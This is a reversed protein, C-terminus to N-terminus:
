PASSYSRAEGGRVATSAGDGQFIRRYLDPGFSTTLPPGPLVRYTRSGDMAREARLFLVDEPRKEMLQHAFPYLHTVFFVAVDSDMLGETIQRAIESGERENTTAFPENLLALGQPKLAQVGQSMRSLEEELKGRDMSRDEGRGFQTYITTVVNARFAKAAVRMGSQMMLQALGLSRLFTSKGGQNAGTIVVAHKGEWVLDNGVIAAGPGQRLALCVDYIGEAHIARQDKREVVPRVMSLGLANLASDLNICGVYFGLEQRLDSFLQMIQDTAHVLVEAINHTGNDRIKTLAAHGGEDRDPVTFGYEREGRDFLRSPWSRSGRHPRRLALQTPRGVSDMAASFLRVQRGTIEALLDRVDHCYPAPVQTQLLQNFQRLGASRFNAAPEQFTDRIKEFADLFINLMTISERMMSEPHRAFVGFHGKRHAELAAGAEDYVKRVVSAHLLCDELVDQRYRITEVDTIPRLLVKEVVQRVIPDGAGM